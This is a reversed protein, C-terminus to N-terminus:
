KVMRTKVMELFWKYVPLSELPYDKKRILSHVVKNLSWNQQKLICMMLM